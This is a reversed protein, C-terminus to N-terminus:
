NEPVAPSASPVLNHLTVDYDDSATSRALKPDAYAWPLPTRLIYASTPTIDTYYDEEIGENVFGRKEYFEVAYPNSTWVHMYCDSLEIGGPQPGESARSLIYSLLRSAVGYRRYPKLVSLTMIYLRHKKKQNKVENEGQAPVPAEVRCCIAGVMIDGLYALRSFHSHRPLHEYLQDGYGVPLTAKHLQKIQMVNHRTLQGLGFCAPPDPFKKSTSLVVENNTTESTKQASQSAPSSAEEGGKKEEHALKGM